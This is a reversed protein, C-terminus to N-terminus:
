GSQAELKTGRQLVLQFRSLGKSEIMDAQRHAGLRDFGEEPHGLVVPHALRLVRSADCQTQRGQTPCRSPLFGLLDKSDTDRPLLFEGPLKAAGAFNSASCGVSDVSQDTM